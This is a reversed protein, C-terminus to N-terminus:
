FGIPAKNWNIAKRPDAEPEDPANAKAWEANAMMFLYREHTIPDACIWTWADVPDVSKGAVDCRLEEDGVLEGTAEDIEQHLWIRAPVMPGGKVLRRKFWGCQPEHTIQPKLGALAQRHWSYLDRLVTPTRM